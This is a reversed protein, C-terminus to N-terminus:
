PSVILIHATSSNVEMSIRKAGIDLKVLVRALCLPTGSLHAGGEDVHYGRSRSIALQIIVVAISALTSLIM